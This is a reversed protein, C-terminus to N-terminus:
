EATAESNNDTPVEETSIEETPTEEEVPAPTLRIKVEETIDTFSAGTYIATGAPIIMDFGQESGITKIADDVKQRIPLLLEKKLNVIDQQANLLFAQFRSDLDQIEQQRRERIALPTNAPLAQFDAVKKNIEDALKVNEAEYTKSAENIQNIAAQNEPLFDLIAEIDVIAFKAQAFGCLPLAITLALLLKKLM